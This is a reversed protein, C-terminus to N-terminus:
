KDYNIKNNCITIKLKLKISVFNKYIQIWNDNYSILYQYIHFDVLNFIIQKIRWKLFSNPEYNVFIYSIFWYSDKINSLPMFFTIVELYKTSEIKM